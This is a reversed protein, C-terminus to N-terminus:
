KIIVMNAYQSSLLRSLTGFVICMSDGEDLTSFNFPHPKIQTLFDFRYQGYPCLVHNFWPKGDLLEKVAGKLLEMDSAVLPRNCYVDIQTYSGM